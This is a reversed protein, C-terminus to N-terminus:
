FDLNATTADNSAIATKFITFQGCEVSQANINGVAPTGDEVCVGLTRRCRVFDSREEALSQQPCGRM